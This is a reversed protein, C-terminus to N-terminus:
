RDDDHLIQIWRKALMQEPMWGFVKTFASNIRVNDGNPACEFLPQEIQDFLSDLRASTTRVIDKLSTGGNDSLEAHILSIAREQRAKRELRAQRWRRVRPVAYKVAGVVITAISM